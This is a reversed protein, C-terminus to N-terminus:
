GSAPYLAPAYRLIAFATFALAGAVFSLGQCVYLRRTIRGWRRVTDRMVKLSPQASNQERIRAIQATLDFDRVRNVSFAIGCGISVLYAVANAHFLVSAVSGIYTPESPLLSVSFGLAAGSLGLLLSSASQKQDISKAQWRRFSEQTMTIGEEM